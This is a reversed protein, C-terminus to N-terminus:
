RLRLMQRCSGAGLRRMSMIGEVYTHSILKLHDQHQELLYPSYAGGLIVVSLGVKTSKAPARGFFGKKTVFFCDHIYGPTNELQTSQQMTDTAITSTTSSLLLLALQLWKCYREPIHEKAPNPRHRFAYLSCWFIVSILLLHGRHQADTNRLFWTSTLVLWMSEINDTGMEVEGNAEHAAEIHHLLAEAPKPLDKYTDILSRAQAAANQLRSKHGKTGTSDPCPVPYKSFLSSGQTHLWDRLGHILSITGTLGDLYFVKCIEDLVHGQVFLDNGEIRFTGPLCGAFERSTFELAEECAPMTWEPVWTPLGFLTRTSKLTKCSWLYLDNRSLIIHRAADYFVQSLSKSYDPVLDECIHRPVVIGLAAYIRDRRDSERSYTFSTLVTALDLTSNDIQRSRHRQRADRVCFINSKGYTRKFRLLQRGEYARHFIDWNTIHTGCLVYIGEAVSIEQIIWSRFFYSSNFLADLAKWVENNSFHFIKEDSLGECRPLAEKFVNDRDHWVYDYNSEKSQLITRNVPLEHIFRLQYDEMTMTDPKGTPRREIAVRALYPLMKFAETVGHFSRGLWVIVSKASAYIEPMLRVQISREQENSQNICIADIWLHRNKSRHRLSKLADVLNRTVKLAFGNCHVEACGYEQKWEYSLAQFDLRDNLREQKLFCRIPDTPDGAELEALRISKHDLAETYILSIM